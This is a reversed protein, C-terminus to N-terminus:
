IYGQKYPFVYDCLVFNSVEGIDVCETVGASDVRYVLMGSREVRSEESPVRSNAINLVNATFSYEHTIFTRGDGANVGIHAPNGGLGGVGDSDDGSTWQILGDAYLFIVYSM